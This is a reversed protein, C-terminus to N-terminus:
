AQLPPTGQMGAVGAQAVVIDLEGFESLGNDLAARLQAVERVDAQATV